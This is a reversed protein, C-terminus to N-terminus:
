PSGGASAVSVVQSFERTWAGHREFGDASRSPVSMTPSAVNTTPGLIGLLLLGGAAIEPPAILRLVGEVLAYSRWETLRRRQRDPRARGAM